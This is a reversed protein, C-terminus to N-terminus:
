LLLTKSLTPNFLIPIKVTKSNWTNRVEESIQRKTMGSVRQSSANTISFPWHKLWIPMKHFPRAGLSDCFLTGNALINERLLRHSDTVIFRRDAWNSPLWLEFSSIEFSNTILEERGKALFSNGTFVFYATSSGWLEAWRAPQPWPSPADSGSLHTPFICLARFQSTPM